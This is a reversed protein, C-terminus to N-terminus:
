RHVRVLAETWERLQRGAFDVDATVVHLGIGEATFVAWMLDTREKAAELKKAVAVSGELALKRRNLDILKALQFQDIPRGQSRLHM